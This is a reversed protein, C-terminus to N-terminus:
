DETEVEDAEFPIELADGELLGGKAAPPVPPLPPQPPLLGGRSGAQAGAPSEEAAGPLSPPPAAVPTDSSGAPPEPPAGGDGASPSSPAEPGSSSKGGFKSMRERAAARARERAEKMSQLNQRERYEAARQRQKKQWKKYWNWLFLTTDQFDQITPEDIMLHVMLTLVEFVFLYVFWSELLLFLYRQMMPVLVFNALTGFVYSDSTAAEQEAREVIPFVIKMPRGDDATEEEMFFSSSLFFLAYTMWWTGILAFVLLTFPVSSPQWHMPRRPVPTPELLLVLAKRYVWSRTISRVVKRERFPTKAKPLQPLGNQLRQPCRKRCCGAVATCLARLIGLTIRLLWTSVAWLWCYWNWSWSRVEQHKYAFLLPWPGLNHLEFADEAEEQSLNRARFIFSKGRLAVGIINTAATAVAASFIVCLQASVEGFCSLSVIEGATWTCVDHQKGPRVYTWQHMAWALTVANIWLGLHLVAVREPESWIFTQEDHGLCILKHHRLLAQKLIRPHGRRIAREAKMWLHDIFPADPRENILCDDDEDEELVALPDAKRRLKDPLYSRDRGNDYATGGPGHGMEHISALALAGLPGQREGGVSAVRASPQFSMGSTTSPSGTAAQQLRPGGRRSSPLDLTLTGPDPHVAAGSGASRAGPRNPTWSAFAVNTNRLVDHEKGEDKTLAEMQATDWVSAVSRDTMHPDGTGWGSGHSVMAWPIPDEDFNEEPAESAVLQRRVADAFPVGGAKANNYPRRGPTPAGSGASNPPNTNRVSTAPTGDVVDPGVLAGLYRVGVMPAISRSPTSSPTAVSQPLASLEPSPSGEALQRHIDNALGQEHYDVAAVKLRINKQRRSRKNVFRALRRWRIELACACLIHSVALVWLFISLWLGRLNYRNIKSTWEVLIEQNFITIQPPLPTLDPSKPAVALAVPIAAPDCECLVDVLLEASGSSDVDDEDAGEDGATIGWGKKTTDPVVRCGLALTWRMLAPSWTVCEFEVDARYRCAEPADCSLDECPDVITVNPAPTPPAFVPEPPVFDTVGRWYKEDWAAPVADSLALLLEDVPRVSSLDILSDNVAPDLGDIVKTLDAATPFDQAWADLLDAAQPASVGFSQEIPGRRHESNNAAAVLIDMYDDVANELFRMLTDGPVEEAAATDWAASTSTTTTATTATTSTTSTSTTTTSTATTTTINAQEAYAHRVSNFDTLAHMETSSTFDKFYEFQMLKLVPRYSDPLTALVGQQGTEGVNLLESGDFSVQAGSFDILVVGEPDEVTIDGFWPRADEDAGGGCWLAADAEKVGRATCVAAAAGAATKDTLNPDTVVEDTHTTALVGIAAKVLMTPASTYARQAATLSSISTKAVNVVNTCLSSSYLPAVALKGENVTVRANGGLSCVHGMSLDGGTIRLKKGAIAPASSRRTWVTLQPILEAMPGEFPMASGVLRAVVGGNVYSTTTTTPAVTPEYTPAMTPEATPGPTPCIEEDPEVVPAVAEKASCCRKLLRESPRSKRCTADPPPEPVRFKYRLRALGKTDYTRLQVIDSQVNRKMDLWDFVGGSKRPWLLGAMPVFLPPAPTNFDVPQPGDSAEGSAVFDLELRAKSSLELKVTSAQPDGTLSIPSSVAAVLSSIRVLPSEIETRSLGPVTSLALADGLFVAAAQVASVASQVMLRRRMALVEPAVKGVPYTQAGPANLWVDTGLASATSELPRLGPIPATESTHNWLTLAIDKWAAAFINRTYLTSNLNEGTAGRGFGLFADEPVQCPCPFPTALRAALDGVCSLEEEAEAASLPPDLWNRPVDKRKCTVVVVSSSIDYCLRTSDTPGGVKRCIDAKGLVNLVEQPAPMIEAPVTPKADAPLCEFLREMLRLVLDKALAIAQVSVKELLYRTEEAIVQITPLELRRCDDAIRFLTNLLRGLSATDLAVDMAEVTNSGRVLTRFKGLLRRTLAMQTKAENETRDCFPPLWDILRDCECKSWDQVPVLKEVRRNQVPPLPTPGATPAQTANPDRVSLNGSANSANSANRCMSANSANSCNVATTTTTTTTPTTIPENVMMKVLTPDPCKGGTGCDTTCNRVKKLKKEPSLALDAVEALVGMQAEPGALKAAELVRDLLDSVKDPSYGGADGRGEKYESLLLVENRASGGLGYAKGPTSAVTGLADRAYGKLLVSANLRPMLFTNIRSVARWNSLFRKNKGDEIAFRFQLPQDLDVWDNQILELSILLDSSKREKLELYGTAPPYNVPLDTSAKLTALGCKSVGPLELDMEAEVKVNSALAVSGPPIRLFVGGLTAVTPVPDVRAPGLITGGQFNWRVRPRLWALAKREEASAWTPPVVVAGIITSGTSDIPRGAWAMKKSRVWKANEGPKLIVQVLGDLPVTPRPAGSFDDQQPFAVLQLTGAVAVAAVDDGTLNGLAELEREPADLAGGGGGGVAEDSADSSVSELFEEAVQEPAQSDDSRLRRYAIAPATVVVEFTMNACNTQTDPEFLSPAATTTNGCNRHVGCELTVFPQCVTAKFIQKGTKLTEPPFRLEYPSLGKYLSVNVAQVGSALGVFHTWSASMRGKLEFEGDELCDPPLLAEVAVRSWRTSPVSFSTRMVGPQLMPVPGEYVYLTHEKVDTMDLLNKVTLRIRYYYGATLTRNFDFDVFDYKAGLRVFVIARNEFQTKMIGQFRATENPDPVIEGFKTASLAEWTRYMTRGAHGDSAGSDLITYKVCTSTAEPGSIAAVPQPVAGLSVDERVAHKPAYDEAFTYRRLANAKVVALEGPKAKPEAGLAVTLARRTRWWCTPGAGIRSLTEVDLLAECPFFIADPKKPDLPAADGNLELDLSSYDKNFVAKILRPPLTDICRSGFFGYPRAVDNFCHWNKEVECKESCGDNVATNGDDCQELGPIILGDGCRNTCVDPIPPFVFLPSTSCSWGIEIKCKADCGDGTVNNGDDCEEEFSRRGDGCRLGPAFRCKICRPTPESMTEVDLQNMIGLPDPVVSEDCDEFADVVGNGCTRTCNSANPPISTNGARQGATCHYMPEVQCLYNCGDRSITNGDDCEEGTAEYGDGCIPECTSPENTSGGSCEYGAEVLCDKDCGDGDYNNGDDCDESSHRRGDGCAIRCISAFRDLNYTCKWLDEVVCDKNCGDGTITNNDDCTERPESLIGDGCTPDCSMRGAQANPSCTYGPRLVCYFPDCGPDPFGKTDCQEYLKEDMSTSYKRDILIGDGCVPECFDVTLLSGGNCIFGDEVLCTDSCGDFSRDNGDDCMETPARLADGCKATCVSKGKTRGCTYGPEPQCNISCGDGGELNGDDCIEAGVLLGDGCIPTCRDPLGESSPLCTYGVELTCLRSCGDLSNTNGDDCEEGPDRVRNGCRSTDCSVTGPRCKFLGNPQECCAFGKEVTCGASCGDGDLTNGDDCIEGGKVLGDGCVGSCVSTTNDMSDVYSRCQWNVEIECSTDCGDGVNLNGDDCGEGQLRVGDGCIQTCPEGPTPCRWGSEIVCKESCGNGSALDGDDCQEPPRLLGDGCRPRCVSAVSAVTSSCIFGQEVQCFADCGDNPRINGDDCGEAPLTPIGDGCKPKCLSMNGPTNASCDYGKEVKCEASCGDDDERNGDDCEELGITFNGDGCLPSCVDAKAEGNVIEATCTFGSEIKCDVDCGDYALTNGDDCEEARPGIKIRYGDGCIPTCFSGSSTNSARELIDRCVWGPEIRCFSCGDGDFMNTDDCEEGPQKVGDYCTMNCVEVGEGAGERRCTWSRDIKCNTCGDGAVNNGDDCEEGRRIGDGCIGTCVSLLVDPWKHECTWGTEVKCDRGCGDNSIKNGDDCAETYHRLGDGCAVECSDSTLSVQGDKLGGDCTIATGYNGLLNCKFFPEVTADPACGDYMNTNCDDCEEKDVRIGDIGAARCVSPRTANSTCAWGDEITCSRSCGDYDAQNGDDCAEGDYVFGDGCLTITRHVSWESFNSTGIINTSRVRISYQRSSRLGYFTTSTTNQYEVTRNISIRELAKEPALWSLPVELLELDYTLVRSGGNLRRDWEVTLSSSTRQVLTPPAPSQPETFETWITQNIYARPNLFRDQYSIVVLYQSWPQLYSVVPTEDSVSYRMFDPLLTEDALSRYLNSASVNYAINTGFKEVEPKVWFTHPSFKDPRALKIGPRNKLWFFDVRFSGKLALEPLTYQFLIPHEIKGRPSDLTIPETVLDIVYVIGSVDVSQPKNYYKDQCRVTLLYEAGSVLAQEMNIQGAMKARAVLTNRKLDVTKLVSALNLEVVHRGKTTVNPHLQIEHPSNPDKVNGFKSGIYTLTVWLSNELMDEELTYDMLFGQKTQGSTPKHIIPKKTALDYEVRIGQITHNGDAHGYVDQYALDIRYLGGDVLRPESKGNFSRSEVRDVVQNLGMRQDHWSRLDFASINVVYTKPAAVTNAFYLVHPSYPDPTGCHYVGFPDATVCDAATFVLKVTGAKAREPIYFGMHIQQKTHREPHMHDAKTLRIGPWDEYIDHPDNQYELISPVETGSDVPVTAQGYFDDGWCRAYATGYVLGCTHYGGSFLQTINYASPIGTVLDYPKVWGWCWLTNDVTRGCTHSDGAALEVFLNNAGSRGTMEGPVDLVGLDDYGWCLANDEARLRLVKLTNETVLGCCHKNGCSVSTWVVDTNNEYPINLRNFMFDGWCWMKGNTDVACTHYAGADVAQWTRNEPVKLRHLSDEGWCKIEKTTALGCTHFSGLTLFTFQYGYPVDGQGEVNRGWCRTENDPYTIGCSHSYGAYMSDFLMGPDIYTKERESMPVGWSLPTYFNTVGLTYDSGCSIWRWSIEAPAPTPAPTAAAWRPQLLLLPLALAWLLRPSVKGFGSAACHYQPPAAPYSCHRM